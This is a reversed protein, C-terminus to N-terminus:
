RAAEVTVDGDGASAGVTSRGAPDADIGAGIWTRGRPADASLHYRGPPLALRVAGGEARADVAGPVAAFRARIAGAGTARLTVHPSRLGVATVDGDHAEADIAGALGVLRVDGTGTSVRVDLGVPVRVRYSVACESGWRWDRSAVLRVDLRDCRGTLRLVDGGAAVRAAPRAGTWRSRTEVLVDDRAEAVVAVDGEEDDITLREPAPLTHLATTDGVTRVRAALVFGSAAVLALVVVAVLRATM